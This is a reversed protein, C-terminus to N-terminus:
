ESYYFSSSSNGNFAMSGGKESQEGCLRSIAPDIYAMVQSMFREDVDMEVITKYTDDKMPTVSVVRAGRVYTDIFTSYRDREVVMDGIASGGWVHLGGVVEALARFADIKSARMTMLRRQGEPYYNKPPAGYGTAGVKVRSVREGNEASKLYYKQHEEMLKACDMETTKSDAATQTGTKIMTSSAESDSGRTMRHKSGTNAVIKGQSHRAKDEEAPTQLGLTGCATLLLTSTAIIVASKLSVLSVNMNDSRNVVKGSKMM